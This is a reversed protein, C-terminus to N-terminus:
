VLVLVILEVLLHFEVVISLKSVLERRTTLKRILLVLWCVCRCQHRLLPVFWTLEPVEPDELENHTKQQLKSRLALVADCFDLM